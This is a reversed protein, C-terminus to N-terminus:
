LAFSINLVDFILQKSISLCILTQRFLVWIL